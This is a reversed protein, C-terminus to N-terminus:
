TNVQRRINNGGFVYFENMYEVSCSYYIETGTGYQFSAQRYDDIHLNTYYYNLYDFELKGDFSITMPEKEGTYTSLVLVDKVFGGATKSTMKSTTM